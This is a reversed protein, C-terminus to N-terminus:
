EMSYQKIVNGHMLIMIYHTKNIGFPIKVTSCLILQMNNLKLVVKQPKSLWKLCRIWIQILTKKFLNHLRLLINHQLRQMKLKQSLIMFFYLNNKPYHLQMKNLRLLQQQTWNLRLKFHQQM